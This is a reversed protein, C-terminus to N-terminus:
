NGKWDLPRRGAVRMSLDKLEKLGYIILFENDTPDFEGKQMNVPKGALGAKLYQKCDNIYMCVDKKFSGTLFEDPIDKKKM